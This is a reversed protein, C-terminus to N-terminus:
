DNTNHFLSIVANYGLVNEWKDHFAIWQEPGNAPAWGGRAREVNEALMIEREARMMETQATIFAASQAATM